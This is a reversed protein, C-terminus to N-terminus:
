TINTYVSTSFPRTVPLGHLYILGNEDGTRRSKNGFMDYQLQKIGPLAHTTGHAVGPAGILNTGGHLDM